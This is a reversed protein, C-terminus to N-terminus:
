IIKFDNDSVASRNKPLETKIQVAHIRGDSLATQLAQQVLRHQDILALGQFRYSVVRIAFHDSGGTLDDVEVQADPITKKILQAIEATQMTIPQTQM